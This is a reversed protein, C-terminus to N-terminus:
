KKIYWKDTLFEKPINEEFPNDFGLKELKKFWKNRKSKPLKTGCWPCFKITLSSSGGDHIILGYENFKPIYSFLIDPCEYIDKHINCDFILSRNM